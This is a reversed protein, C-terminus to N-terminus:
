VLDLDRTRGPLEQALVEDRLRHPEYLHFALTFHLGPTEHAPVTTLAPALAILVRRGWEVPGGIDARTRAVEPAPSYLGLEYSRILSQIRRSTGHAVTLSTPPSSEM